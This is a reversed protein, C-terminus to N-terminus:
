LTDLEITYQINFTLLYLHLWSAQSWCFQSMSYYSTMKRIFKCTVSPVYKRSTHAPWIERPLSPRPYGFRACKFLKAACNFLTWTFYTYTRCDIVPGYSAKTPRRPHPCLQCFPGGGGRIRDQTWAMRLAKPRCWIQISKRDSSTTKSM